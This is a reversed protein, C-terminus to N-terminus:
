TNVELKMINEESEHKGRFEDLIRLIEDSKILNEPSKNENWIECSKYTLTLNWGIEKLNINVEFIM